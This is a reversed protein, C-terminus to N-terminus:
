FTQLLEMGKAKRVLVAHSERGQLFYLLEMGKVRFFLVARPKGVKRGQFFDLLEMGKVRFFVM